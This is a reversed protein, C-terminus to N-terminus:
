VSNYVSFQISYQLSYKELISYITSFVQIAYRLKICLNFHSTFNVEVRFIFLRGEEHVNYQVSYLVSLGVNCHVTFHLIFDGTCYLYVKIDLLSYSSTLTGRRALDYPVVGKEQLNYKM